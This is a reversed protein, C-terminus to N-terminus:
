ETNVSNTIKISRERMKEDNATLRREVRRAGVVVLPESRLEPENEM